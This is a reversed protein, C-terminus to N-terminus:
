LITTLYIGNKGRYPVHSRRYRNRARRKEQVFDVEDTRFYRDFDRGFVNMDNRYLLKLTLFIYTKASSGKWFTWIKHVINLLNLSFLRHRPSTIDAEETALEMDKSMEDDPIGGLDSLKLTKM